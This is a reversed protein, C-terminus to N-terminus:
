NYVYDSSYVPKEEEKVEEVKSEEEEEEEFEEKKKNGSREETIDYNLIGLDYLVYDYDLMKAISLLM